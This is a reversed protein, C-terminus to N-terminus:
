NNMPFIELKIYFCEYRSGPLIVSIIRPDNGEDSNGLRSSQSKGDIKLAINAM